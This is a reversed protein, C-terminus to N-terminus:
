HIHGWLMAAVSPSVKQAANFPPIRSNGVVDEILMYRHPTHHGLRSQVELLTAKVM